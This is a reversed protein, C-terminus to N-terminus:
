AAEPMSLSAIKASAADVDFFWPDLTSADQFGDIFAQGLAPNQGITMMITFVPEQANLMLNTFRGVHQAKEWHKEFTARMWDADFALEGRELISQLVVAAHKSANNAGQGTLPDNLIVVDGGGMLLRGSPLTAVPKRVMPPVAGALDSLPDTMRLNQCRAAEWPFFTRLATLSAELRQESSVADKFMAHMPGGIVSEFMLIDCPGSLTLCPFTVFEGVGPIPNFSASGVGSSKLEMGHVYSMSLYRQPKDYVCRAADREFLGSIEGKGAAIIVLDASAAYEELMAVDAEAIVLKGGDAEFRDMWVPLKLRQDISQGKQHEPVDLYWDVLKGGAGDPISFSVGNAKPGEAAWPNLGLAAEHALAEGFLIQSSLVRGSRIDAGTRNSVLTVDYGHKLLTIGLQLGFQGAGVIVIKRM